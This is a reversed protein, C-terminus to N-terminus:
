GHVVIVCMRRPGHAGMVLKGGIDGTRSPGSIMNLTRPMVRDGLKRRIAAFGDEYPGVVDRAAVVVIHTEPLFNITVPNDAGSAILMTGTEAVAASAHSVGVDDSPSAAGSLRELTPESSWPLAALRADAGIRVRSPLNNARLYSSVASPVDVPSAVDVVTASQGELFTKFLTVLEDHSKAVREPILHRPRSALRSAVAARRVPDPDGGAVAARVKGLLTERGDKASM